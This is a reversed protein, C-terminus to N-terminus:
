LRFCSDLACFLTFLRLGSAFLMNGWGSWTTRRQPGVESEVPKVLDLAGYVLVVAMEVAGCVCLLENVM